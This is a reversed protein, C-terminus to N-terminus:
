YNEKWLKKLREIDLRFLVVLMHARIIIRFVWFNIFCGFIICCGTSILSSNSLFCLKQFNKIDLFLNTNYKKNDDDDDNHMKIKEKKGCFIIYLNNNIRFMMSIANALILGCIDWNSLLFHFYVLLISNLALLIYSLNMQNSDNTANAFCEIVGNIAIIAIYISYACGIKETVNTAWKKSYVLEILENGCM